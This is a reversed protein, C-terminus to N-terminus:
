KEKQIEWEMSKIQKKNPKKHKERKYSETQTKYVSVLPYLYLHFVLFLSLFLRRELQLFYPKQLTTTRQQACYILQVNCTIILIQSHALQFVELVVFHLRPYFHVFSPPLDTVIRHRPRKTRRHPIQVQMNDSLIDSVSELFVIDDM